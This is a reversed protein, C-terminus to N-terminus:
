QTAATGQTCTTSPDNFDPSLVAGTDLTTSGAATNIRIRGIGGGGGAGHTTSTVGAGAASGGAAGYGGSVCGSLACPVGAAVSRDLTGSPAQDNTGAEGAGGGGGNVAITGGIEVHPAEILVAGGAGGGGGGDAGASGSTGGCGGANIGGSGGSGVLVLGNSALQLAGGGGGGPGSMGGGSGGGGGGGGVLLSIAADGFAAGGVGGVGLSAGGSGGANGYGGGGGGNGGAVGATGGGSGAANAKIAGGAFGGPGAGTAACFWSVDITGTITIATDAAFAVPQTGTVYVSGTVALSKFRFVAIGNRHEYDIGANVGTVAARISTATGSTGIAGTDANIIIADPITTDALDSGDLDGPALGTTPDGGSGSPVLQSCHAPIVANCGWPCSTDIYASGAGPCTRLTSADACTATPAVCVSGDPPAADIMRGDGSRGDGRGDGPFDGHSFSCAAITAGAIVGLRRWGRNTAV